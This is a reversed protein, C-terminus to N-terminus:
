SLGYGRAMAAAFGPIFAIVVLEAIFFTRARAIEAAPPTYDTASAAKRWRLIARTPAISLLGVLAFAAMKAWFVWNVLYYFPGATGLWVRLVGAVIVLVAVMGYAADIRGLQHLRAGAIGPRLLAFEAVVLAVLSFVALHHAVALVLDTM